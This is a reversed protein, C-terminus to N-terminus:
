PIFQKVVQLLIDIDGKIKEKLKQSDQPVIYLNIVSFAVLIIATSVSTREVQFHLCFRVFIRYNLEIHVVM